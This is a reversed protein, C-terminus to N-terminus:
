ENPEDDAEFLKSLGLRFGPLVDEGDFEDSTTLIVNKTPSRYVYAQEETPYIVWVRRVGAQFYERIKGLVEDATNSPSVVEVALDPVVGWAETGPVRRNRPWREYSVYAVDPRRRLKRTESLVFLTETAVRGLEKEMAFPGLYTQLISAIVSEFAGMRPTEVFKGEVVEYHFDPIFEKEPQTGPLAAASSM